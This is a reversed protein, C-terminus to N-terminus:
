DAIAVGIVLVAAPSIILAFVLFWEVVRQEKTFKMLNLVISFHYDLVLNGIQFYEKISLHQVPIGAIRHTILYM